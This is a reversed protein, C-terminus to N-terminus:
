EPERSIGPDLKEHLQEADTLTDAIGTLLNEAKKEVRKFLSPKAPDTAPKPEAVPKDAKAATGEDTEKAMATEQTEQLIVALCSGPAYATSRERALTGSM